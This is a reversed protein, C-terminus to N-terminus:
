TRQRMFDSNKMKDCIRNTNAKEAAGVAETEAQPFSPPSQQSLFSAFCSVWDPHQESFDPQECSEFSPQPPSQPLFSHGQGVVLQEWAGAAASVSASISNGLIDLLTKGAFIAHYKLAFFGLGTQSAM